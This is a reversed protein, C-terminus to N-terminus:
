EVTLTGKMTTHISCHFSYTGPEAPATFTADDGGGVQVDFGGDDATVTHTTGDDNHVSVQAGPAVPETTFSFDAVTVDAATPANTANGGGGGDDDDGGCAALALTLTLAAAVAGAVFSRSRFRAPPASGRQDDGPEHPRDDRRSEDDHV